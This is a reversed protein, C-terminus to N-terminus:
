DRIKDADKLAPGYDFLLRRLGSPPNRVLNDIKQAMPRMGPYQPPDGAVVRALEEDLQRNFGLGKRDNLAHILEHVYTKADEGVLRPSGERGRTYMGAANWTGAVPVSGAEVTPGQAARELAARYVPPMMQLAQELSVAAGPTAPMLWELGSKYPPRLVDATSKLNASNDFAERLYIDRLGSM